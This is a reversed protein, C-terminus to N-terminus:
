PEVNQLSDSQRCAQIKFAVVVLILVVVVVLMWPQVWSGSRM